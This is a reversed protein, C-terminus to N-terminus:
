EQACARQKASPRDKSRWHSIAEAGQVTVASATLRPAPYITDLKEGFIEM